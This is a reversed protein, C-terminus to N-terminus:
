IQEVVTRKAIQERYFKLTEDLFGDKQQELHKLSHNFDEMTTKIPMVLMGTTLEYMCHNNKYHVEIVQLSPYNELTIKNGRVNKYILTSEDFADIVKYTKM